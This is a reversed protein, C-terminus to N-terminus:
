DLRLVPYRSLLSPLDRPREMGYQLNEQKAATLLAQVQQIIRPGYTSRRKGARESRSLTRGELDMVPGQSPEHQKCYSELKHLASALLQIEEEYAGPHSRGFFPHTLRAGWIQSYLDRDISRIVKHFDFAILPVTPIPFVSEDALTRAREYDAARVKISGSLSMRDFDPSLEAVLVRDRLWVPAGITNQWHNVPVRDDVTDLLFDVAPDSWGRWELDLRTFYKDAM